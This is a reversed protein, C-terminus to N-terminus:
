ILKGFNEAVDRPTPDNRRVANATNELVGPTRAGGCLKASPPVPGSTATRKRSLSLDIGINGFHHVPKALAGSVRVTDPSLVFLM